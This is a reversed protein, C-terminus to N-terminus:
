LASEEIYKYLTPKSIGMVDCVEKVTKEKEHYLKVALERKAKNLSKPRGGKRGRARAAALGAQTREVILNREFEAIAGFIHFFLKGTGTSTDISENLSIIQIGKDELTSVLNILDKMSRGLRDLRWVVIIDSERAFEILGDLGPRKSKSGSIVDDFFKECGAKALADKQLHLNQDDTSIRSYGIKM